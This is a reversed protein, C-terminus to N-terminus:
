DLDDMSLTKPANNVENNSHIIGTDVTVDSAIVKNNIQELKSALKDITSYDNNNISSIELVGEMESIIDFESDFEHNISNQEYALLSKDLLSLTKDLKSILTKIGKLKEKNRNFEREIASKNARSNPNNYENMLKSTSAHLEDYKSQQNQLEVYYKNNILKMKIYNKNTYYPGCMHRDNIFNEIVFMCSNAGVFNNSFCYHECEKLSNIIFNDIVEMAARNSNDEMQKLKGMIRECSDAFDEFGDINYMRRRLENLKSLIADKRTNGQNIDRNIEKNESRSVKKDNFSEYNFSEFDEILNEKKKKKFLAM